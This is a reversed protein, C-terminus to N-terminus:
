VRGLRGQTFTQRFELISADRRAEESSVGFIGSMRPEDSRERNGSQFSTM